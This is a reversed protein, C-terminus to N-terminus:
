KGTEEEAYREGLYIMACYNALKPQERLHATHPETKQIQHITRNQLSRLDDPDMTLWSDGKEEDNAEMDTIMAEFFPGFLTDYKLLRDLRATTQRWPYLLIFAFVLGFPLSYGLSVDLPELRWVWLYGWVLWTVVFLLVQIYLRLSRVKEIARQRPSTM